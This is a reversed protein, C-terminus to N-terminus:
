SEDHEGEKEYEGAPDVDEIIIDEDHKASTM